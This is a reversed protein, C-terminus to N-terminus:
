IKTTHIWFHDVEEIGLEKYYDQAEGRKSIPIRDYELTQFHESFKLKNAEIREIEKYIEQKDSSCLVFTEIRNYDYFVLM